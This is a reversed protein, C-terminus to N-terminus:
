FVSELLREIMAAGVWSGLGILMYLGLRLWSSTDYPWVRVRELRSELDLLASLRDSTGVERRNVVQEISYRIESRIKKLQSRKERQIRDRIGRVPLTFVFLTLTGWILLFTVSGIFATGPAIYLHSTLTLVIVTLLASKLGQQVFPSLPELDILDLVPLSRALKSMRLSDMVMCVLFRGALWGFAMGSISAAVLQYNMVTFGAVFGPIVIFLVLFASAGLIGAIVSAPASEEFSVVGGFSARLAALHQGTWRRLFLHAVPVYALLVFLTATARLALSDVSGSLVPRLHGTVLEGVLYATTLIVAAALGVAVPSSFRDLIRVSLPIGRRNTEDIAPAPTQM